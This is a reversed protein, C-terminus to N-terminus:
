IKMCICICEQARNNRKEMRPKAQIKNTTMNPSAGKMQVCVDNMVIIITIHKYSSSSGGGNNSNM